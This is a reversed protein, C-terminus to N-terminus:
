ASRAYIRDLLIEKEGFLREAGIGRVACERLLRDSEVIPKSESTYRISMVHNLWPEQGMAYVYVDRCGLREVMDIAQAYDSGSLRRSRDSGREIQRLLLPGYLWSLPAGECEMGLFLTGVEGTVSRVHSYVCGDPACSDAAFLLQEDGLRVLYALKTSIALDAHEGLFPVGTLSGSEFEITELEALERVRQFGSHAFALKLSPDQLAGSGGRPIVIEGVRPRLQLLTELLIHDMHNHTIVVYDIRDPLDLYTYRSITSEYTYSLVPDFLISVDRTELLICAHGFYRWRVGNGRYADYPPPPEETLLPRFRAAEAETFGLGDCIQDWRAPRVRLDALRNVREDAFQWHLHLDSEDPLRPTSLVFPRDDGKTISLLVSQGSPDFFRSRYLLAELLRFGANDRLDYSLEVYGRLAEPVREYLPALAHGTPATRLLGDLQELAASLEVLPGRRQRTEDRLARIEEVRKGGHDIFPGGLMRPDKAANAHLEPASLYSDMIRFHRHTINRALTAPSILHSWAYWHDVLPEIQVDARLYLPLKHM